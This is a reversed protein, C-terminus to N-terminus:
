ERNQASTKLPHGRVLFDKKVKRYMEASFPNLCHTRYRKAHLISSHLVKRSVFLDASVCKKFYQIRLLCMLIQKNKCNYFHCFVYYYCRPFRFNNPDYQIIHMNVFVYLLFDSIDFYCKPWTKEIESQYVIIDLFTHM